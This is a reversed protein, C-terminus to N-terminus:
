GRTFGPAKENSFVFDIFFIVLVEFFPFDWEQAPGLDYITFAWIKPSTTRVQHNTQAM